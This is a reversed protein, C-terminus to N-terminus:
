DAARASSAPNDADNSAAAMLALHGIFQRTCREWSHGQAFSLCASSDLQLAGHIATALDADLVGTVGPQVVDLPGQVPFAAVAVGCAMAELMVIGFTDTRSPFVFVDAAAMQQALDVGFRYGLFKAQPYSVRLQGLAPGDGVIVKTGPLDLRLFAELNKEVAVRGAYLMWPRPWDALVTQRAQPYPRFIDTDVGRSWLVLHTFGHRQLNARVTETSVLTRAAPRHFSRLYAYGLSLPFRWREHAYEALQTHYSTTFPLQRLRCYRRAALGLPGETAIHIAEPQFAQLHERVVKGPRLALRIEPYSPCPISRHGFASVVEVEHGLHEATEVTKSLTTVVGNIQPRWADSVIAIRM